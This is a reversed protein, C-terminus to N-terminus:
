SNWAHIIAFHICHYENNNPVLSRHKFTVLVHQVSHRGSFKGVLYMLGESQFEAGGINVPCLCCVSLNSTLIFCSIGGDWNETSDKSGASVEHALDGNDAHRTTNQYGLSNAFHNMLHLKYYELGCILVREHEKQM